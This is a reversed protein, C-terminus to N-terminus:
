SNDDYCYKEITTNWDAYEYSMIQEGVNLNETMWVQDGIQVTGYEQGDRVDVWDDGPKWGTGPGTTFSKQEGYATGVSNTAYARVYYTTNIALNTLNSVYIGTGAGDNTYTNLLTPNESTNWCVGKATVSAGGDSIVNGGSVATNNTVDTVETTTVTPVTIDAPTTFDINVSYATGVSNTAYAKVYYKTGPTLSVLTSNFSGTSTKQGHTTKIDSITPTTTVSSWCHGHESVSTVGTGLNEITGSITAETSSLSQVSGITVVPLTETIGAESTTFDLEKDSYRTESGNTIYARIYYKTEPELGTINSTYAGARTVDGYETYNGGNEIDPDPSTAWCHGHEEIGVGLDLVTGTAKATTESIDFVSDLKVKMVKEQEKECSNFITTFLVTIIISLLCIILYSNRLKM